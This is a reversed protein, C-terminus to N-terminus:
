TMLMEQVCFAKKVWTIISTGVGLECIKQGAVRADDISKVRFKTLSSAEHENPTLYDVLKYYKEIM